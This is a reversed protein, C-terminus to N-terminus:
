QSFQIRMIDGEPASSQYFLAKTGETNFDTVRSWDPLNMLLTGPKNLEKNTLSYAKIKRTPGEKEVALMSEKVVKLEGPLLSELSDIATRLVATNGNLKNKSILGGQKYDILLLTEANQSEQAFLGARLQVLAPQLTEIDYRYIDVHKKHESIYISKDDKSWTLPYKM